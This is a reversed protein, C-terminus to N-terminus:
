ATPEAMEQRRYCGKFHADPLLGVSQMFTGLPISAPIRFFRRAQALLVDPGESARTQWDNLLAVGTSDLGTQPRQRYFELLRRANEIITALSENNALALREQPTRRRSAIQKIEDANLQALREPIFDQLTERCLSLLERKRQDQGTLLEISLREFLERDSGPKVGYQRDHYELVHGKAWFCRARGDGNPDTEILPQHGFISWSALLSVTVWFALSGTLSLELLQPTRKSEWVAFDKLYVEHELLQSRLSQLRLLRINDPFYEQGSWLDPASTADPEVRHAERNSDMPSRAHKDLQEPPHTEAAPPALGAELHRLKLQLMHNMAQLQNLRLREASFKFRMVAEDPQVDDPHDLRKQLDDRLVQLRGIKMRLKGPDPWILQGEKVSFPRVPSQPLMEEAATQGDQQGLVRPEPAPSQRLMEEASTIKADLVALLQDGKPAREEAPLASVAGIQDLVQMIESGFLADTFQFQPQLARQRLAANAAPIKQEITQLLQQAVSLQESEPLELLAEIQRYLPVLDDVPITIGLISDGPEPGLAKRWLSNEIVRMHKDVDSKLQILNHEQEARPKKSLERVRRSLEKISSDESGHASSQDMMDATKLLLDELKSRVGIPQNHVAHVKELVGLFTAKQLVLMWGCIFLCVCLAALPWYNDIRCGCQFAIGAAVLSCTAGGLFWPNALEAPIIFGPYKLRLATLVCLFGAALFAVPGWTKSVEAPRELLPATAGLVLGPVGWVIAALMPLLLLSKADQFLPVAIILTVGAALWLLPWWRQKQWCWAVLGAFMVIVLMPGIVPLQWWLDYLLSILILPLKMIEPLTIGSPEGSILSELQSKWLGPWTVMYVMSMVARAFFVYALVGLPAAIVGIAVGQLGGFCIRRRFTGCAGIVKSALIWGLLAGVSLWLMVVAAADWLSSRAESLVPGLVEHGVHLLELRHEYIYHGAIVFLEFMAVMLLLVIVQPGWEGRREIFRGHKIFERMVEALVAVIAAVGLGILFTKPEDLGKKWFLVFAAFGSVIGWAGMAACIWQSKRKARPNICWDRRVENLEKLKELIDTERPNERADVPTM